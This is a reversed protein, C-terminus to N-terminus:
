QTERKVKLRRTCGSASEETSVNKSGRYHELLSLRGAERPMANCRSSVTQTVQAQYAPCLFFAGFRKM